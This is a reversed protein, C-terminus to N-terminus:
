WHILFCYPANKFVDSCDGLGSFLILRIIGDQKLRFSGWWDWLWDFVLLLYRSWHTSLIWTFKSRPRNSTTFVMSLSRRRHNMMRLKCPANFCQPIWKLSMRSWENKFVTTIKNILTRTPLILDDQVIIRKKNIKFSKIVVTITIFFISSSIALDIMLKWYQNRIMDYM